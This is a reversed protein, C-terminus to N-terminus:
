PEYGLTLPLPSTLAYSDLTYVLITLVPDSPILCCSIIVILPFLTLAPCTSLNPISPTWDTKLRPNDPNDMSLILHCQLTCLPAIAIPIAEPKMPTPQSASQPAM